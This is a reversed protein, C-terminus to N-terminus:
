KLLTKLTEPTFGFGIGIKLYPSLRHDFGIFHEYKIGAAIDIYGINQLRRQYGTGAEAYYYNFYGSLLSYSTEPFADKLIGSLYSNHNSIAYAGGLVFYNAGFGNTNRGMRELYIKNYYFKFDFAAEATYNFGNSRNWNLSKFQIRPEASIIDSIKQEVAIGPLLRGWEVTNFKILTKIEQKQGAITRLLYDYQNETPLSDNEVYTRVEQGKLSIVVFITFLIMKANLPAILFYREIYSKEKMYITESNPTRM